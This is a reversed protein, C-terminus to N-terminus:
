ARRIPCVPGEGSAFCRTRSSSAGPGAQRRDRRIGIAWVFRGASGGRALVMVAGRLFVVLQSETGCCARDASEVVKEVVASRSAQSFFPLFCSLLPM